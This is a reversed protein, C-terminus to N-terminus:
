RVPSGGEYVVAVVSGDLLMTPVRIVIWAPDRVGDVIFASTVARPHVTEYKARLGPFFYIVYIVVPQVITSFIDSNGGTLLVVSVMSAAAVVPGAVLPHAVLRIRASPFGTDHNVIPVDVKASEVGGLRCRFRIIFRGYAVEPFERQGITFQLRALPVRLTRGRSDERCSPCGYEAADTLRRVAIGITQTTGYLCVVAPITDQLPVDPLYLIATGPFRPCRPTPEVGVREVRQMRPPLEFLIPSAPGYTSYRLAPEVGTWVFAPSRGIKSHAFVSQSTRPVHEKRGKWERGDRERDIRERLLDSEQTPCRPHHSPDGVSTV